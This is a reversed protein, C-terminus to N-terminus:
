VTVGATRLRDLSLRATLQRVLPKGAELLVLLAIGFGLALVMDRWDISGFKLLAQAKPMFFILATM